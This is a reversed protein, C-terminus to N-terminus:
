VLRHQVPDTRLLRSCLDGRTLRAADLEAAAEAFDVDNLILNIHPGNRLGFM